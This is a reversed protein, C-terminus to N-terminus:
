PKPLKGQIGEVYFDMKQMGDDSMTKGAPVRISGDQDKVPGAYPHFAGAVIEKEIKAVQDRVAAPVAPNLPALKIMGAKIGGWISTPKWTGALVEKANKIYLDGWLHTTATLQHKPAYKSMDSHYAIAWVGREEAAQVM